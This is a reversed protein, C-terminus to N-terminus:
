RRARETITEADAKVSAIAEQPVLPTAESVQRKGILVALGAAAFLAAGVILAALWVALVTALGAIAAALLCGAGYVAVIGSGGFIGAGRAIHRAKSTLEAEALKVEDRALRSLQETLQQVLQGASEAPEGTPSAHETM